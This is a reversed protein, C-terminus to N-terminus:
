AALTRLDDWTGEVERIHNSVRGLISIDEIAFSSISNVVVERKWDPLGLRIDDLKLHAYALSAATPNVTEFVASVDSNVKLVVDLRYIKNSAGICEVDRDIQKEPFMHGLRELTRNSIQDTEKSRNRLFIQDAWRKGIDSLHLAAAFAQDPSVRYVSFCNNEAIIGRQSALGAAVKWDSKSLNFLGMSVRSNHFAEKDTITVTGDAQGIIELDLVSGDPLVTTTEFTQKIEPRFIAEEVLRSMTSAFSNM